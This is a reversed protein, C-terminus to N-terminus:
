DAGLRLHALEGRSSVGLKPYAKYLHYSITRPSLFLQAGIDRNTMGTAALRAVQLEQPTLRSQLDPRQEVNQSSDGAARLESRAREYWTRAKLRHFVDAATRLQHRADTRRRNRRLWEGFLLATRAQEFTSGDHTHLRLAERYLRETDSEPALLAHRRLVTAHAWPQRTGAAWSEFWGVPEYARDPQGLRVAAEAHDSITHLATARWAPNQQLEELRRLADDFRGLSLDLLALANLCWADSLPMGHAFVEAALALCREEDGEMAALHVLCAKLQCIFQDQSTDEAIRLGETASVLADRYQGLLIYSRALRAMTRPLLGIAGQTRCDHQLVLALDRSVHPDGTAMAYFGVGTRQRPTILPHEQHRLHSVLERLATVGDTLDGGFIHALGTVGRLVLRVTPDEPLQLAEMRSLTDKILEGAGLSWATNMAELITFASRLPDADAVVTATDLLRAHASALKGQEYDVMARVQDLRARVLPDKILVAAQDALDGARGAQGADLAAQAARALRRGRRHPQPSLQAARAYATAVEAYGGRARAHEASQELHGAVGEDAQATGAALHWVSRDAHVSGNLARALALHIAMRRTAPPGAYAVARILPHRFLLRGATLHVLRQEELVTLDDLSASLTQAAQLVVTPDGTDDAAAIALLTQASPPLARIRDTFAQRVRSGAQLAPHEFSLLARQGARQEPTLAAALEILALPIGESEVIIRDRIHPALEDAHRALLEASTTEDLRSPVLEPLGSTQLAAQEDRAAFVLAIPEADLRRAAFLLADLSAQDICHADDVLCVVPGAEAIDSLLTLVSLGVLFRDPVASHGLGLASRLADAQPLPLTDLLHVYPHLLLHLTAFALQAESEIGACRLVHMGAAREAAWDLLASKGIGAEGRILLSGSFGSRIGDILGNLKALETDRGHLLAAGAGRTTEQKDALAGERLVSETSGTDAPSPFKAHMHSGNTTAGWRMVAWSTEDTDPGGSAVIQSNPM